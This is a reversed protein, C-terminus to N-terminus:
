RRQRSLSKIANLVAPVLCTKSVSAPLAHFGDFRGCYAVLSSREAEFVEWVTQDSREPHPHAKAYGVCRDTLWANLEDYTKFRPRPTLFRERVLGVQNEVQGKEWGSAPTCAVPEVLYHSCMQLFRRNYRRDKGIYITEVATKMNDYIGRTCAGRFFAFARDHADFVMEQTERPYARVFMMRSHCLRVHAVKVTMTTGNLVVIEHSWDFQYAEGPAFSLPVFAAATQSAHERSWRQAYRRVADYGGEYGLGRLEEFLRILTLRERASRGVNTSLLRDLEAKWRGLRPQPQMERRYEVATEDSRLIKRVTNRSLNLDRAVQRISKGKVLHERRIRGITEVILM